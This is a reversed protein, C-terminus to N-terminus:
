AMVMHWADRWMKKRHYRCRLLAGRTRTRTVRRKTPGSQSRTPACKRSSGRTAGTMMLCLGREAVSATGKASCLIHRDWETRSHDANGVRIDATLKFRVMHM